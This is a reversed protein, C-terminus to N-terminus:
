KKKYYNYITSKSLDLIDALETLTVDTENRADQIFQRFINKDQKLEKINKNYKKEIEKVFDIIDKHKIDEFELDDSNKTNHIFDFEKKYDKTKGFILKMSDNTIIMKERLFENYSSYEYQEMLNCMNAKVPNNHIYKICSYLQKENLIDQSYYRDRFVYGVRKHIKNYYQSYSTNVRQM